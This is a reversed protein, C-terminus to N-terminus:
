SPKSFRPKVNMLGLAVLVQPQPLENEAYTRCTASRPTFDPLLITPVGFADYEYRELTDGVEDTVAVLNGNADALAYIRENLNGPAGTARDRFDLDDPGRLGWVYERDAVAAGIRDMASAEREQLVQWDASYLYHRVSEAAGTFPNDPLRKVIRRHLADYEYDVLKKHDLDSVSVLRNWPDYEARLGSTPVDAAPAATVNGSQDHGMPGWDAGRLNQILRLKNASDHTRNQELDYTGASTSDQQFTRWNGTADLRFDQFFNPVTIAPPVLVGREFKTLRDLGDHAYLEGHTVALHNQRSARIGTRRYTQTLAVLPSPAPDLNQRWQTLVERDFADWALGLPTDVSWILAPNALEVSRFQGAGQYSYFVIGTLATMSNDTMGSVRSMANHAAVALPDSELFGYHFAVERRFHGGQRREPYIMHTLRAHNQKGDAYEYEVMPAVVPGGVSQTEFRIQGRANYERAVRNVAEDKLGLSDAIDVNGFVDYSYHLKLVNGPIPGDESPALAEDHTLRGLQDYSYKHVIGREDTQRVVEEQGNYAFEVTSRDPFVIQRLLHTTAVGVPSKVTGYFWETTQLGSPKDSNM